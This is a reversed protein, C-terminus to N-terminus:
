FIAKIAPIILTITVTLGAGVALGTKLGNWFGKKRQKECLDFKMNLKKIIVKYNLVQSGLSWAAGLFYWTARKQFYTTELSESLSFQTETLEDQILSFQSIMTLVARSCEISFLIGDERLQIEACDLIVRAEKVLRSPPLEAIVEVVETRRKQLDLIRLRSKEIEAEKEAVIKEAAKANEVAEYMQDELAENRNELESIEEDIKKIDKRYGAENCSKSILLIVVVLGLVLPLWNKKIKYLYVNM